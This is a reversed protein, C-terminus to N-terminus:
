PSVQAPSAASLKSGPATKAAEASVTTQAPAPLRLKQGVLLRTSKLQNAAQIATVTIHHQKAIKTLTEGAKVVHVNKLGSVASTGSIGPEKFSIGTSSSSTPAPIDEPGSFRRCTLIRSIKTEDRKCGQMLLGAFFVAHISVILFIAVRITSKGQSQRDLLGQPGVPDTTNM